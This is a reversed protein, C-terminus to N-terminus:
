LLAHNIWDTENRQMNTVCREMNAECPEWDAKILPRSISIDGSSIATSEMLRRECLANAFIAASLRFFGTIWNVQIATLRWRISHWSFLDQQFDHQPGQGRGGALPGAPLPEELCWLRALGQGGWWIILCITAYRFPPSLGGLAGRLGGSAGVFRTKRKGSGGRERTHM